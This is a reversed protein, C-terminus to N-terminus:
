GLGLADKVEKLMRTVSKPPEAGDEPRELVSKPLKHFRVPLDIIYVGKKGFKVVQNCDLCQLGIITNKEKKSKIFVPGNVIDDGSDNDTSSARGFGFGGTSRRRGVGM